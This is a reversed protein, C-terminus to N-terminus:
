MERGLMKYMANIRKSTICVVPYLGRGAIGSIYFSGWLVLLDLWGCM